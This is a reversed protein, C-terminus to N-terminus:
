RSRRGQSGLGVGERACERSDFTGPKGDPRGWRGMPSLSGGRLAWAEPEPEPMVDVAERGPLSLATTGLTTSDRSCPAHAVPQQEEGMAVRGAFALGDDRVGM